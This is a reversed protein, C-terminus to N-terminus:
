ILMSSVIKEFETGREKASKEDTSESFIRFIPETGSPRMLVWGDDFFIKLGDTEDIKNNVLFKDKIRRILEEKRADPCEVQRKDVFYAPLADVQEKLSGFKVILELMKAVTMAGDRCFQHNGFILGGNEEGGFTLNEKIMRRAVIPSGIATYIVKGGLDTVVKEVLSSSSVPTVITSNPNNSLFLKCMLALSKDGYLYNGGDTVFIARDADGDHAIGINANTSKTLSILDKLNAETPESPHGPFDGEPNANLTIARVGLKKLLMPTTQYAAGNACDVVAVFNAKKIAEVDVHSLIADVYEEDAGDYIEITGTENWARCFIRNAYNEEIKKENERSMETGDADICKIGNFNPPNHSATIMVGGVVDSRTKVFYQIAPTPLIGLDIVKCGVSLLGSSVAFKLMDKSLRTDTAIAVTGSFFTGIAKGMQLAFDVNMDENVVGRVGNTGFLRQAM